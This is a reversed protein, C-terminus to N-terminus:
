FGASLTLAPGSAPAARGAIRFRWDASLRAVARDAIPLSLSASPGIDLRSVGRQAGGWIAAGARMEARDISFVKRDIRVQGDIFASPSKGGVYGAQGYAEGRMGLPLKAAPLETVIMAAPRIQTGAASRSARGEAMAVIPLGSIPRVSFGLAAEQDRSGNLAASVRLYAAPKRPSNTDLRYRLVAGIQSAGYSGGNAALSAPGGDRRLLLWADASWPQGKAKVPALPMRTPILEPPLPLMSLASLFLLQHGGALTPNPQPQAPAAIPSPAIPSAAAPLAEVAPISDMIPAALPLQPAHWPLAIVPADAARILGAPKAPEGLQAKSGSVQAAAVAAPMALHSTPPDMTWALVRVATWCVLIGAMAVLPQGKHSAAKNM